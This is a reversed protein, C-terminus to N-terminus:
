RATIISAHFQENKPPAHFDGAKAERDSPSGARWHV